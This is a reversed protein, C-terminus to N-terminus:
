VITPHRPPRRPLATLPAPRNEPPGARAAQLAPDAVHTPGTVPHGGNAKTWHGGPLVTVTGDPTWRLAQWTVGTGSIGTASGSGAGAPLPLTTIRPSRYRTPRALGAPVALRTAAGNSSWRVPISSEVTTSYAGVMAGGLLLVSFVLM